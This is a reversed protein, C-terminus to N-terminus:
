SWAAFIKTWWIYKGFKRVCSVVGDEILKSLVAPNACISEPLVWQRDLVVEVSSFREHAVGMIKKEDSLSLVPFLLVGHPKLYNPAEELVSVIWRTGDRGAGCSIGDPFWPSIRAIDDSIGSVDDVIYDFREESWPDFLSGVQAVCEIGRDKANELTLDVAAASIDSAYLPRSCLGLEVLALGTVGCGCGLDLTKGPNKILKQSAEILLLSTDTPSFVSSRTKLRILPASANPLKVDYDKQFVESTMKPM